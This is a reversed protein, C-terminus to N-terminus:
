SDKSPKPAGALALTTPALDIGHLLRTDVTGAKFHAPTPFNKPWRIILPVLLGEEYCFQKGRVHSQGNDGFFVVM